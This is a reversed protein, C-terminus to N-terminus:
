SAGERVIVTKVTKLLILIDMWLNWNRIYWVDMDIRQFFDVESRGSVQWLGTIGPKVLLITEAAAGMKQKEDPLYPRPGVLSMENKLVNFIQPLEDLSTKRLFTGVKTIRPDNMYKHYKNYYQIEEPHKELYIKLIEDGDEVMTRFKYCVFLKGGEGLRKQKFLISAHPEERKILLAIIGLIPLLLPLLLISVVYDFSTKFLRRPVSKLRNQFVILNTRAHTLEYIISQTLDYSNVLPIFVVEKRKSIEKDIIERLREADYGKSNVFVTQSKNEDAEIYGLYPNGFIEERIFTDDGFITAARKWIGVKFLLKKTINKLLPIFFSMFVFALVIVTRSYSYPTKSLSLIAMVILFSFFLAKLIQRSEHWFDYRRTYIGEYFFMLLIVGYAPWYDTYYSM